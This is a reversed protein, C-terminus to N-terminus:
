VLQMRAFAGLVVRESQVLYRDLEAAGEQAGRALFTVRREHPRTPCQALERDLTRRGDDREIPEREVVLGEGGLGERHM